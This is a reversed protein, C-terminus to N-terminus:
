RFALMSMEIHWSHISLTPCAIAMFPFYQKLQAQPTLNQQASAALAQPYVSKSVKIYPALFDTDEPKKVSNEHIKM